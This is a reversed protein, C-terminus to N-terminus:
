ITNQDGEYRVSIFFLKAVLWTSQLVIEISQRVANFAHNISNTEITVTLIFFLHRPEVKSQKLWSLWVCTPLLSSRSLGSCGFCAFMLCFLFFIMRFFFVCVYMCVRWVFLFDNGYECCSVLTTTSYICVVARGAVSRSRVPYLLSFFVFCSGTLFGFSFAVFSNFFLLFLFCFINSTNHM